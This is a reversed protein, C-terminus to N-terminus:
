WGRLLPFGSCIYPNSDCDECYNTNNDLTTVYRKSLVSVEPFKMTVITVQRSFTKLTLSSWQLPMTGLLDVFELEVNHWLPWIPQSILNWFGPGELGERRGTLTVTYSHQFHHRCCRISLPSLFSTKESLKQTASQLAQWSWSNCWLLLWYPSWPVLTMSVAAIASVIVKTRCQTGEHCNGADMLLRKRTQPRRLKRTKGRRSIISM